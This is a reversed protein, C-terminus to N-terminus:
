QVFRRINELDDIRHNAVKLKEDQLTNKEELHYVREVLDNHKEVKKELQELRYSVLKSNIMIGAFTGVASALISILSVIANEDM